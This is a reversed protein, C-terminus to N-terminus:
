SKSGRRVVSMIYQTIHGGLKACPQDIYRTALDSVALTISLCVAWDVTQQLTAGKPGINPIHLLDDWWVAKAGDPLRGFLRRIYPNFLAWILPYHALYLMFSLRGVYRLPRQDLATQIGKLRLCAWIFLIAGYTQWYRYYRDAGYVAPILLTLYHWGPTNLSSEMWMDFRPQSLLYWGVLAITWLSVSRGRKSLRSFLQVEDLDYSHVLALCLGGTFCGLSWWGTQLLLVMMVMLSLMALSPSLPTVCFLGLLLYVFLSGKHQVPLTWVVSDYPWLSVHTAHTQFPNFYSITVEVFHKLELVANPQAHSWLLDPYINGPLQMLCAITLGVAWCPLYLRFPRRVTASVLGWLADRKRGDSLKKLTSCSIAYGSLVFFIAVASAGGNTFVRFFPLNCLYYHKGSEGWGHWIMIDPHRHQQFVSLAALGRLGDLYASSAATRTQIGSWPTRTQKSQFVPLIPKSEDAPPTELKEAQASSDHMTALSQQHGATITRPSNHTGTHTPHSQHCIQIAVADPCQTSPSPTLPSQIIPLFVFLTQQARLFM